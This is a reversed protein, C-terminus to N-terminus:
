DTLVLEYLLVLRLGLKNGLKNDLISNIVISDKEVEIIDEESEKLWAVFKQLQWGSPPNCVTKCWEANQPDVHLVQNYM